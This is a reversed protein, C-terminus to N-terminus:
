NTIRNTFPPFYFNYSLFLIFLLQVIQGSGIGFVDRRRLTMALSIGIGIELDFVFEIFGGGEVRQIRWGGASIIFKLTLIIYIQLYFPIFCASFFNVSIHLIM